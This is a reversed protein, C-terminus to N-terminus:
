ANGQPRRWFAGYVYLIALGYLFWELIPKVFNAVPCVDFSISRSGWTSVVPACAASPVFIGPIGPQAHTGPATFDSLGSVGLAGIGSTQATTFKGEHTTFATTTTTIGTEATNKQTAWAPADEKIKLGNDKMDQLLAKNALQTGETACPVGGCDIKAVTEETVADGEGPVVKETVGTANTGGDAAGPDAPATTVTTSTSTGNGNGVVAKVTVTGNPNITTTTTTTGSKVTISTPTSTVGPPLGTDPDRPDATQTGSEVKRKAKGDSPFPVAPADTLVCSGASFTYGSPCTNSVTINGLALDGGETRHGIACPSGNSCGQAQAQAGFDTVSTM